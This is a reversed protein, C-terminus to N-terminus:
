RQYKVQSFSIFSVTRPTERICCCNKKNVSEALYLWRHIFSLFSRNKKLHEEYWGSTLQVRQELRLNLLELRQCNVGPAREGDGRPIESLSLFEKPNRSLGKGRSYWCHPFELAAHRLRKRKLSCCLITQQHWRSQEKLGYKDLSVHRLQRAKTWVRRAESVNSSKEFWVYTQCSRAACLDM